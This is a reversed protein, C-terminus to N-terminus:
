NAELRCLGPKDTRHFLFEGRGKSQALILEQPSLNTKPADGSQTVFVGEVAAKPLYDKGYIKQASEIPFPM